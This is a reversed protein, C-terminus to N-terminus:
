EPLRIGYLETTSTPPADRFLSWPKHTTVKTFYVKKSDFRWPSVQRLPPLLVARELHEIDKPRESHFRALYTQSDPKGHRLQMYTLRVYMRDGAASLGDVSLGSEPTHQWVIQRDSGDFRTSVISNQPAPLTGKAVPSSETWYFRDGLRVPVQFISLNDRSRILYPPSSAPLSMAYLDYSSNRPTGNRVWLWLTNGQQATAEWRFGRAVPRAPGGDAPSLMFTYSASQTQPAPDPTLWFLGQTTLCSVAPLGKHGPLDLVTTQTATGDFPLRYLIPAQQRGSARQSSPRVLFSLVFLGEEQFVITNRSFEGITQRAAIWRRNTAVDIAHLTVDMGQRVSYGYFVGKRVTWEACAPLDTLLREYGTLQDNPPTDSLPSPKGRSFAFLCGFTLGLAFLLPLYRKM